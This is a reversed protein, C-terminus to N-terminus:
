NDALVGEGAATATTGVFAFLTLFTILRAM